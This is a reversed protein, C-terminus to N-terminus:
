PTNSSVARKKMPQSQGERFHPKNPFSPIDEENLEPV